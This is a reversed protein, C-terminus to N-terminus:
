EIIHLQLVNTAVEVFSKSINPRCKVLAPSIESKRERRVGARNKKRENRSAGGCIHGAIAVRPSAQLEALSEASNGNPRLPALIVINNM